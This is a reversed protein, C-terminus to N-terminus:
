AEIEPAAGTHDPEILDSLSAIVWRLQGIQDEARDALETLFRALQFDKSCADRALCHALESEELVARVASWLADERAAALDQLLTKASFGHGLRCRFRPAREDRIKYLVAHCEPCTLASAIAIEEVRNQPVLGDDAFENEIAFLRIVSNAPDPPPDPKDIEQATATMLFPGIEDLPLCHDIAVHRLANLPMSPALADNPDQVVTIGGCDKVALLGATGNDLNGTLVVGIVDAGYSLAASRFLPDVAPRPHNEKPGHVTRVYGQALLMNRDPPAVYIRGPMIPETQCAWAVPLPGARSLIEPLSSRSSSGIHLVVFVAARLDSPLASVIRELAAVAGHSAGIVVIKYKSM